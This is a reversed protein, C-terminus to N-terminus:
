LCRREWRWRQWVLGHHRGPSRGHACPRSSLSAQDAGHDVRRFGM